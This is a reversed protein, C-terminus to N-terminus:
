FGFDQTWWPGGDEGTYVGVGITRFDCNLINARHGESNMWAEMVAAADAQGMAINEGGLNDVGAEEARDWPTRGDPDDHSFYGREAMDRSHDAALGTLATDATLPECGAEAREENVLTVVERAAVTEAEGGPTTPEESVPPTSPEPDPEQTTPSTSPDETSPSGSPDEDAAPDESEGDSPSGTEQASEPGSGPSTEDAPEEDPTPAGTAGDTELTPPASRLDLPLPAQEDDARFDPSGDQEFQEAVQPLLGTGLAM